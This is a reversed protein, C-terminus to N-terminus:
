SENTDTVFVLAMLDASNELDKDDVISRYLRGGPVRMRETRDVVFDFGNKKESVTEWTATM